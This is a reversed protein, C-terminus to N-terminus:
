SGVVVVAASQIKKKVTDLLVRQQFVVTSDLDDAAATQTFEINSSIIM